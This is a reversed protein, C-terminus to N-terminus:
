QSNIEEDTLDTHKARRLVVDPNGLEELLLARAYKLAESEDKNTTSFVKFFRGQLKEAGKRNADAASKADELRWVVPRGNHVFALFWYERKFGPLNM